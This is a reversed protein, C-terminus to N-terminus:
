YFCYYKLHQNTKIKIGHQLKAAESRRKRASMSAQFLRCILRFSIELKFQLVEPIKSIHIIFDSRATKRIPKSTHSSLMLLSFPFLTNRGGEGDAHDRRIRNDRTPNSGLM